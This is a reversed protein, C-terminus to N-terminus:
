ARKWFGVILLASSVVVAGTSTVLVAWDMGSGSFTAIRGGLVFACLAVAFVSVTKVFATPQSTHTM